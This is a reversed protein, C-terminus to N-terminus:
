GWVQEVPTSPVFEYGPEGPQPQSLSADFAPVSYVFQAGYGNASRQTGYTSDDDFGSSYSSQTQNLSTASGSYYTSQQASATSGTSATPWEREFLPLATARKVPPPSPTRPCAFDQKDRSALSVSAALDTQMWAPTTYPRVDGVPSLGSLQGVSVPFEIFTNKTPLARVRADARAVCSDEENLAGPRKARYSM